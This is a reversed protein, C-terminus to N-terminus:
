PKGRQESADHKASCVIRRAKRDRRHIAGIYGELQSTREYFTEGDMPLYNYFRALVVEGSDSYKFHCYVVHDFKGELSVEVARVYFSETMKGLDSLPMLGTYNGDVFTKIYTDM